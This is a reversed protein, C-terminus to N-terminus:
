VRTDTAVHACADVLVTTQEVLQLVAANPGRRITTVETATTPTALIAAAWGVAEPPLLLPDGKALAQLHDVYSRGWRTTAADADGQGDAWAVLVGNLAMGAGRRCHVVAARRQAVKERASTLEARAASIWETARLRWLWHTPDIM